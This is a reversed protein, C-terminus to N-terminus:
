VVQTVVSLVANSSIRFAYVNIFLANYSGADSPKVNHLTFSSSYHSLVNTVLNVSLKRWRNTVPTDTTNTVAAFFTVDSGVAVTQSQPHVTVVPAVSQAWLGFALFLGVVALLRSRWRRAFSWTPGVPM